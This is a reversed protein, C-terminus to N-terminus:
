WGALDLADHLVQRRPAAWAAPHTVVAPPLFGVAAVAADAVARLTAALLEAPRYARGGLEVTEEDVRRKPNAEYRTPDAQALRQADRGVHLRGETDAYVGSPLIPHGDVLLPRTRGDPWRLVAVTNSTGLDVGLAFGDQQGSM